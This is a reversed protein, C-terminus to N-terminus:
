SIVCLWVPLQPFIRAKVVLGIRKSMRVHTASMAFRSTQDNDYHIDMLNLLLHMLCVVVNMQKCKKTVTHAWSVICGFREVM